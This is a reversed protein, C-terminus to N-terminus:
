LLLMLLLTRFERMNISYGYYISTGITGFEMSDFVEQYDKVKREWTNESLVLKNFDESNVKSKAKKYVANLLSDIEKYNKAAFENMGSTTIENCESYKNQIKKYRKLYHKNTIQKEVEAFLNDLENRDKNLETRDELQLLVDNRKIINFYKEQYKNILNIKESVNKTDNKVITTQEQTSINKASVSLDSVVPLLIFTLLVSLLIKSQKKFNEKKM